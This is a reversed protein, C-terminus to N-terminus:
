AYFTSKRVEVNIAVDCYPMTMEEYRALFGTNNVCVDDVAIERDFDLCSRHRICNSQFECYRWESWASWLPFELDFAFKQM